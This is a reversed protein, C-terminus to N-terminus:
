VEEQVNGQQVVSVVVDGNVRFDCRELLVSIVVGPNVVQKLM